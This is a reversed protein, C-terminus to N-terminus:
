IETPPRGAHDAGAELATKLIRAAGSSSNGNQADAFFAAFFAAAMADGAGNANVLNIEPPIATVTDGAFSYAALAGGDSVLVGGNNRLCRSLTAAMSAADADQGSKVISSGTVISANALHMLLAGAEARNLVLADVNGLIAALRDIKQLSTGAAYLPITDAVRDALAALVEAPFNADIVVPGEPSTRALDPLTLIIEPTVQDYISLSAAGIVLEGDADLLATYVPMDAALEDEPANKAIEAAAPNVFVADIGCRALRDQMAPAHAAPQVGIFRVNLGTAALHRAINAAVGGLSETLRAPNTRRMVLADGFMLHRDLHCGGIVTFAAYSDEAMENV